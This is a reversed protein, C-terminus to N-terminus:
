LSNYKPEPHIIEEEARCPEPAARDVCCSYKQSSDDAPVIKWNVTIPDLAATKM